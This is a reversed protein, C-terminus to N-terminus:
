LEEQQKSDCRTGREELARRLQPRVAAIIFPKAIALGAVCAVGVWEGSLGFARWVVLVSAMILWNIHGIGDIRLCSEWLKRAQQVPVGQLEPIEFESFYFKM